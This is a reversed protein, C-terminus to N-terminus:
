QWNDPSTDTGGSASMVDSWNAEAEEDEEEEEIQSTQSSPSNIANQNLNVGITPCDPTWFRVFDKMQAISQELDAVM